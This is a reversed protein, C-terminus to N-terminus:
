ETRESAARVTIRRQIADCPLILFIGVVRRRMASEGREQMTM